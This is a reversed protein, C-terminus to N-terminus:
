DSSSDQTDQSDPPTAALIIVRNAAFTAILQGDDDYRWASRPLMTGTVRATADDLLLSPRGLRNSIKAHAILLRVDRDVLLGNQRLTVKLEFAGSDKQSLKGTFGQLRTAHTAHTPTQQTLSSQQALSGQQLSASQPALSVASSSATTSSAVAVGAAVAVTVVIGSIIGVLFKM